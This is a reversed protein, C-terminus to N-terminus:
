QDSGGSPDGAVTVVWKTRWSKHVPARAHFKLRMGEEVDVTFSKENESAVVQGADSHIIAPVKDKPRGDADALVKLTAGVRCRVSGVGVNNALSVTFDIMDYAPDSEHNRWGRKTVSFARPKSKPTKPPGKKRRNFMPGLLQDLFDLGDGVHEERKTSQRIQFDRFRMRIDTHTRKVLDAADPGLSLRLRDLNENWKDHAEPESLTFARTASEGQAEFVGVAAADGERAYGPNYQIVLGNRTLAVMNALPVDEPTKGHPISIGKLCLQGPKGARPLIPHLEYGDPNIRQKLNNYCDIFPNLEGHRRPRPDPLRRDGEYFEMEVRVAPDTELLRPWWYKECARVCDTIELGCDLLLVTLGTDGESRLELGISRAFDHADSNELPKSPYREDGSPEGLFAHGTFRTEDDLEHAPFFATAMFRANAGESAETPQFTSYYAMTRINSTVAYVMKGVGWSGLLGGKGDFKESVNISLVLNHFRSDLGDNRDWRGGLGNTNHDSLVLVPIPVDPDDLTPLCTQQIELWGHARPFQRARERLEALQFNQVISRKEDGHFLLRRVRFKVAEDADARREDVSNQIAERMLLEAKTLDTDQLPNAMQDASMMMAGRQLFEWAVM